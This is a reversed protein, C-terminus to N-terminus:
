KSLDKGEYVVIKNIIDCFIPSTLPASVNGVRKKPQKPLDFLANKEIARSM